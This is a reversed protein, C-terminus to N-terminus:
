PNAKTEHLFWEALDSPMVQSTDLKPSIWGGHELCRAVLESCILTHGEKFHLFAPSIIDLGISIDTLYGYPVGLCWEAFAIAQQTDQAGLPNSVVEYDPYMSVNGIVVGKGLAQIITGDPKTVYAAHNWKSAEKGDHICEGFQIIRDLVKTGHTLVIDGPRLPNM